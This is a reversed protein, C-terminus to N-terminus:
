KAIGEYAVQAAELEMNCHISYYKVQNNMGILLNMLIGYDTKEICWNDKLMKLMSAVPDVPRVSNVPAKSVFCINKVPIGKNVQLSEKGCFPTGYGYYIGDEENLRLITNDGNIIRADDFAKLWLKAHTTKGGGPDAAFAYGVGDKEVLVSHLWFANYEKLRRYLPYHICDFEAEPLTIEEGDYEAKYSISNELMEDTASLIIGTTNSKDTIYDQCREKVYEFRNDITIVLGAIEINFM